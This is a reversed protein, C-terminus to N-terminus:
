AIFASNLDPPEEKVGLLRMAHCSPHYTVKGHIM